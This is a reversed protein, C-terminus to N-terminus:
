KLDFRVWDVVAVTQSPSQPNKAVFYLDHFRGTPTYNLPLTAESFTMKTGNGPAKEIRVSGALPGDPRDLRLELWGGATELYKDASGLGLQIAHISTLDAHRIMFFNRHRLDRIVVTDGNFPRYTRVEASLSDAQEVQMFAPRLALVETRELARQTSSGRDRYTAQM